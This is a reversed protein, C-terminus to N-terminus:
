PLVVWPAYGGSRIEDALQVIPATSVAFPGDFPASIALTAALDPGVVLVIGAAVLAFRPGSRLAVLLAGLILAAGTVVSLAFLPAPLVQSAIVIRQRRAENMTALAGQMGDAAGSPAYSRGGFLFVDQSLASVEDAAPSPLQPHDALHPWEREAVADLEEVLAAQVLAADIPPLGAAGYAVQSAAAMEVGVLNQAQRLTGYETNILFGTLIAFLSGLVTMYAAATIGIGERRDAPFARATALVAVLAFIIAGGVCLVLIAAGSLSSLWTM